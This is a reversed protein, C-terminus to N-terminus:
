DHSSESGMLLRPARFQVIIGKLCLERRYTKYKTTLSLVWQNVIESLCFLIM